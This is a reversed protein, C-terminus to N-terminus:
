RLLRKLLPPYIWSFVAYGLWALALVALADQPLLRRAVTYVVLFGVWMAASAHWGWRRLPWLPLMTPHTQVRLERITEVLDEDGPDSRLMERALRLCERYQKRDELVTMVAWAAKRTEPHNRMLEALSTRAGGRDGRIVRCIVSLALADVDEPELRLAESALREAKEIQLAQLMIRAYTTYYDPDGPYDKLLDLILGEAETLRRQDLRLRTLLYRGGAHEPDLQLLEHLIKEAAEKRSQALDVLASLHLLDPNGPHEGLGRALIAEAEKFRRREFLFLVQKNLDDM